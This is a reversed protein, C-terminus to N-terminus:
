TTVKKMALNFVDNQIEVTREKKIKDLMKGSEAYIEMMQDYKEYKQTTNIKTNEVM